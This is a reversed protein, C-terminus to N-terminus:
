GTATLGLPNGVLGFVPKTGDAILSVLDTRGDPRLYSRLGTRLEFEAIKEESLPEDTVEFYFPSSRISTVGDGLGLINFQRRRFLRRFFGKM